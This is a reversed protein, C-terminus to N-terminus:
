GDESILQESEDEVDEGGAAESTLEPEGTEDGDSDEDDTEPTALEDTPGADDEEPNKLGMLILTEDDVPHPGQSQWLKDLQEEFMEMPDRNPDGLYRKMAQHRREAMPDHSIANSILDVDLEIDLGDVVYAARTSPFDAHMKAVDLQRPNAVVYPRDWAMFDSLVSSIDTILVDAYDFWRYLPIRSHTLTSPHYTDDDNLLSRIKSSASRMSGKRRGNMPHPKYIVRAGPHRELLAAILEPGFAALSSYDSKDFYGEWTPAYLITAPPPGMEDAEALAAELKDFPSDGEEPILREQEMERIRPSLPPRGIVDFQERPIAIGAAHYRDIGAEGSVWIRDYSRTAPSASGAKDSDGHGLFVHSLRPDRQMHINLTGNAPYLAVRLSPGIIKECLVDRPLVIAPLQDTGISRVDRHRFVLAIRKSSAEFTRLWVNVAYMSGKHGNYYCIVEPDYSLFESLIERDHLGNIMAPRLRRITSVITGLYIVAATLWFAGLGIAIGPAMNTATPLSLLFAGVGVSVQVPLESMDRKRAVSKSEQLRERGAELAGLPTIRRSTDLQLQRSRIIRVMFAALLSIIAFTVTLEAAAGGAVLAAVFLMARWQSRIELGRRWGSLKRSRRNRPRIDREEILGSLLYAVGAVVPEGIIAGLAMAAYIAFFVYSV